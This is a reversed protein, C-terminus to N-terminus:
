LDKPHNGRGFRYDPSSYFHTFPIPDNVHISPVAQFVDIESVGRVARGEGALNCRGRGDCTITVVSSAPAFKPNLEGVAYLASFGDQGTVFVYNSDVTNHNIDNQAYPPQPLTICPLAPDTFCSYQYPYSSDAGFAGTGELAVWLSGATSYEGPNNVNGSVKYAMAHTSLTFLAAVVALIILCRNKKM